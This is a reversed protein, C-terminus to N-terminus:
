CKKSYEGDNKVSRCDGVLLKKKFCHKEEATSALHQMQLTQHELEFPHKLQSFSIQLIPYQDEFFLLVLWPLTFWLFWTKLRTLETNRTSPSKWSRLKDIQEYGHWSVFEMSTLDYSGLQSHFFNKKPSTPKLYQDIMSSECPTQHDSFVPAFRYPDGWAM